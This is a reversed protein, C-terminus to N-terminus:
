LDGPDGSKGQAAHRSYCLSFPSRRQMTATSEHSTEKRSTNCCRPLRTRTKWCHNGSGSDIREEPQFPGHFAFCQESCGNTAVQHLTELLDSQSPLSMGTTLGNSLLSSHSRLSVVLHSTSRRGNRSRCLTSIMASM